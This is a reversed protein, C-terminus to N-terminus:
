AAFNENILANNVLRDEISKLISVTRKMTGEEIIPIDMEELSKINLTPQVTTNLNSRIYDQGEPSEIYYKVWYKLTNDEIDILGTARVLNAGSFSNPVVAVKGVSGVLSIVLEGGNLTSRPYKRASAETALELDELRNLGTVINGAKIVPVGEHNGFGPQVIGYCIKRKVLKKLKV